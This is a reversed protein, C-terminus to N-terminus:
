DNPSRQLLELMHLATKIVSERRLGHIFSGCGNRISISDAANWQNLLEQSAQTAMATYFNVKCIGDCGVTSLNDGLSSTGHLSLIAGVKDMLEAALPRRYYIHESPQGRHETGLSPVILDVGTRAVFSVAVEPETLLTVNVDERTALEAQSLIKDPCAEIVIQDGHQEVYDRTLEINKDLNYHSADYMIIGMRELFAPHEMLERDSANPVWGHDLFPIVQVSPFLGPREYVQIWDLWILARDILSNVTVDRSSGAPISDRKFDLQELQPHDPYSATIGLGVTVLPFSNKDAFRQAAELVGEIEEVNEANPCFIPNRTERAHALCSLVASRKTIIKM